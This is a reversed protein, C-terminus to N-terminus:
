GGGTTRHETGPTCHETGPTCHETGPTCHETRSTFANQVVIKPSPHHKFDESTPTQIATSNQNCNQRTM